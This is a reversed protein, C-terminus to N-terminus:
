AAHGQEHLSYAVLHLFVVAFLQSGRPPWCELLILAVSVRHRGGHRSKSVSWALFPVFVRVKALNEAECGAQCVQRIGFPSPLSYATGMHRVFCGSYQDRFTWHNFHQLRAGLVVLPWLDLLPTALPIRTYLGYSTFHRWPDM